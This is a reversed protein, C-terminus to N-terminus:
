GRFEALGGQNVTLLRCYQSMELGLGQARHLSGLHRLGRPQTRPTLPHAPGLPLSCGPKMEPEGKAVVRSHSRLGAAAERLRPKEMQAASLPDREQKPLAM